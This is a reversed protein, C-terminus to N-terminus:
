EHVIWIGIACVSVPKWFGMSWNSNNPPTDHPLLHEMQSLPLTTSTRFCGCRDGSCYYENVFGLIYATPIALEPSKAVKFYM